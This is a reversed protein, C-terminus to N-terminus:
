PILRGVLQDPFFRGFGATAETFTGAETLAPRVYEQRM